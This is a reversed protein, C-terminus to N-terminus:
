RAGSEATLGELFWSLVQARETKLDDRGVVLLADGARLHGLVAHIAGVRTDAFLARDPHHMGAVLHQVASLSAEEEGPGATAMVIDAHREVARARARVLEPLDERGAGLLVWLRGPVFEALAEVGVALAEPTDEGDLYVAYPEPVALRELRGPIKSVRAMGAVAPELEAGVALAAAVAGLLIELQDRGLLGTELSVPGLPTRIRLRAGRAGISEITGQVDAQRDFGYTVVRAMTEGALEATALDGSPLLAVGDRPLRRLLDAEQELAERAATGRRGRTGLHLVVDTRVSEMRGLALEDAPSEVVVDGFGQEKMARLRAILHHSGVRGDGEEVTAATRNTAALGARLLVSAVRRGRAGTIATVRLRASPRGFLIHAALGLARLPDEVLLRPLSAPLESALERPALIAAAGRKLARGLTLGDVAELVVFLDGERVRGAETALGTFAVEEGLIEAGDLRRALGTLSLSRLATARARARPSGGIRRRTSGPGGRTYTTKETSGDM